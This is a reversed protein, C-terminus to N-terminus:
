LHDSEHLVGVTEDFLCVIFSLLDWGIREIIRRRARDDGTLDLCARVCRFAKKEGGQQLPSSSASM